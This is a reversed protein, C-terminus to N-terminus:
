EDTKEPPQPLPMWYLPDIITGGYYSESFWNGGGATYESWYCEVYRCGKWWLDIATGDKPATEIPLWKPAFMEAATDRVALWTERSFAGYCQSTCFDTTKGMDYAEYLKAAQAERETPHTM